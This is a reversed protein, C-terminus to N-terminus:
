SIGLFHIIIMGKLPSQLKSLVLWQRWIYHFQELDPRRFGLRTSWGSVCDGLVWQLASPVLSWSCKLPCPAPLLFTWRLLIECWHPSESATKRQGCWKEERFNTKRELVPIILFGAMVLSHVLSHSDQRWALKWEAKSEATDWHRASQRGCQLHVNFVHHYYSSPFTPTCEAMKVMLSFSKGGSKGLTYGRCNISEPPGTRSEARM